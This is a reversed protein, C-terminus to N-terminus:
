LRNALRSTTSWLLAELLLNTRPDNRGVRAGRLIVLSGGPFKHQRQSFILLVFTCTVSVYRQKKVNWPVNSLSKSKFRNRKSCKVSPLAICFNFRKIHIVHDEIHKYYVQWHVSFFQNYYWTKANSISDFESARHIRERVEMYEQEHKVGTLATSLENIMEELKNQHVALLDYVWKLTVDM